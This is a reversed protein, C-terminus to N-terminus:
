LDKPGVLRGHGLRARHRGRRGRQSRTLKGRNGFVSAHGHLVRGGLGHGLRQPTGPTGRGALPAECVARYTSARRSGQRQCGGTSGNHEDCRARRTEPAPRPLEAPCRSTRPTDNWDRASNSTAATSLKTHPSPAPSPGPTPTPASPRSTSSVRPQDGTRPRHTPKPPRLPA